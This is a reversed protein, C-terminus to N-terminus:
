MVIEVSKALRDHLGRGDSDIIILPVIVMWLATRILSTSLTANAGGVKVIQIRAIRKGITTGLLGIMLIHMGAFILLPAIESGNFFLAGLGLAIVWDIILALFRRGYGAMAAPGEPPLGLEQGPYSGAAHHPPGEIWSGLDKRSIMSEPQNKPKEGRKRGM